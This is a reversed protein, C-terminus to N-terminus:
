WSVDKGGLGVWGLLGFFFFSSRGGGWTLCNYLKYLFIGGFPLSLFMCKGSKSVTGMMKRFDSGKRESEGLRFM